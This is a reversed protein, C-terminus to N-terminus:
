SGVINIRAAAWTTISCSAFPLAAESTRPLLRQVADVDDLSPARFNQALARRVIGRLDGRRLRRGAARALWLLERFKRHGQRARNRGRAHHRARAAQRRRLAIRAGAQAGAAAASIRDGRLGLLGRQAAASLRAGRRRARPRFRGAAAEALRRRRAHLAVEEIAHAPHAVWGWGFIRKGNTVLRDIGFQLERDKHDSM